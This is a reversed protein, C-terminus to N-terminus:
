GRTIWVAPNIPPSTSDANAFVNSTNKEEAGIASAARVAWRIRTEHAFAASTYSYHFRGRRYTVTAVVVGYDITGTGNDNYIRFTGPEIQEGDRTYTWRLLFKGGVVPEVQLDGPGNAVAGVWHASHDFATQASVDTDWEEVGGGNISNIRYLYTTNAIHTIWPFTRIAGASSGAAGVIASSADPATGIGRRLNYGGKIRPFFFGNTACVANAIGGRTWGRHIPDYHSLWKTLLETAM